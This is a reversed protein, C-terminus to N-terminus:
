PLDAGHPIVSIGSQQWDHSRSDAERKHQWLLVAHFKASSAAGAGCGGLVSTGLCRYSKSEVFCQSSFPITAQVQFLTTVVQSQLMPEMDMVREMAKTTPKWRMYFWQLETTGEPMQAYVLEMIRTRLAMAEASPMEM